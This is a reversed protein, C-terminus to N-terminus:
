YKEGLNLDSAKLSLERSLDPSIIVNVSRYFQSLFYDSIYILFILEGKKIGLMTKKHRQKIKMFFDTAM